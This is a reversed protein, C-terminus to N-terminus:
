NKNNSLKIIYKIITNNLSQISLIDNLRSYYEKFFSDNMVKNIPFDDHTEEIKVSDSIEQETYAKYIKFGPIQGHNQGIGFNGNLNGVRRNKNNYLPIMFFKTENSTMMKIFSGLTIFSENVKIVIKGTPGGGHGMESMNDGKWISMLLSSETDDIHANLNQIMEDKSFCLAVDKFQRTSGLYYLSITDNYDNVIDFEDSMIITKNGCKKGAFNISEKDSFEEVFEESDEENLNIGKFSCSSDLKEHVIKYFIHFRSSSFPVVSRFLTNIEKINDETVNHIERFHKVFIAINKDFMLQRDSLSQSLIEEEESQRDSLSQSLIEEFQRDQSPIEQLIEDRTMSPIQTQTRHFYDKIKECLITKSNDQRYIINLQNCIEYLEVKSWGGRNANCSKRIFDRYTFPM